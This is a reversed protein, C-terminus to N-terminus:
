SCKYFDKDSLIHQRVIDATPGTEDKPPLEFLSRVSGSFGVQYMPEGERTARNLTLRPPEYRPTEDMIVYFITQNNTNKTKYVLSCHGENSAVFQFKPKM